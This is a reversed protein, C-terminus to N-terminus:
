VPPGSGPDKTLGKVVFEALMDNLEKYISPKLCDSGDKDREPVPCLGDGFSIANSRVPRLSM